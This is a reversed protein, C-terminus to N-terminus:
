LRKSVLLQGNVALSKIDTVPEINVIVALRNIHDEFVTPDALDVVDATVIFFRVNVNNFGDNFSDALVFAKKCGYKELMAPINSIAGSSIFVDKIKADHHRGCKCDFSGRELLETIRQKEM